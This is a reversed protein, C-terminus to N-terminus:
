RARCDNGDYQYSVVRGNELEFTTQCSRSATMGGYGGVRNIYATSGIMSMTYNPAMGPASIIRSSSYTLFKRGDAEYIRQPAGWSRVLDLETAGNFSALKREYGGTTACGTLAVILLLSIKKM